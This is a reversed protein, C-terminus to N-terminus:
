RSDAISKQWNVVVTLPTPTSRQQSVFLLFRQGDQTVAYQRRNGSMTIGSPFLVRPIGADLASGITISAAMMAGDPAIFFLERGDGRWLPYTGGSASVRYRAGTAPFPQVYM